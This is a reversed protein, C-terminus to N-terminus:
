LPSESGLKGVAKDAAVGEAVPDAPPTGQAKAAEQITKAWYVANEAVELGGAKTAINILGLLVEWAKIPAEVKLNEDM